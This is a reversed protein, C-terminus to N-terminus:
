SALEQRKVDKVANNISQGHEVPPNKFKLNHINTIVTCCEQSDPM